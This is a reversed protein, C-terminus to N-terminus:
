RARPAPLVGLGTDTTLAPDVAHRETELTAAQKLFIEVLQPDFHTGSGRTIEALADETTWPEKYPRKSVLADYVDCIACIRGPLPIQEGQLGAPYGTGDWREHHTLAITEGMQLLPSPSGALIEAGATTHTKMIEWEEPTLKGPKHLIHDPIAIKGVDHLPSAWRLLEADPTAMGTALGISRSMAGIRVIHLGTDEDRSEAAHLLRRIIEFQSEQLQRRFANREVQALAYRAAIMGITAFACTALPYSLVLITGHDFAIQAALAYSAAVLLALGCAPLVGLKLSALPATLACILLALVALPAAAPQLPNNHIATWIANAELEPGSMPNNSTTSTFHVDQLSPATAGVVVVKGAFTGPNLKHEILDSFSVTKIAGPPGRFDIWASDHQFRSPSISHGAAEAGAVALSKLGLISYPYRRIVGGPDVLMNAAAAVAHVRALHASGGFVDTQGQSNVESTALVVGPARGLETYLARDQSPTTPETFQVDYIIARAKDAHLVKIAQADLARPFPWRLGLAAFTPDDIGVVVVDAPRQAHRLSFRADVTLNELASLTNTAYALLGVAAAVVAVALL